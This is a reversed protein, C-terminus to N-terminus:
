YCRYSRSFSRKGMPQADADDAIACLKAALARLDDPRYDGAGGVLEQLTVIPKRDRDQALCVHLRLNAGRSVPRMGAAYYADEHVRAFRPMHAGICEKVYTLAAEQEMFIRSDASLPAGIWYRFRNHFLRGVEVGAQRVILGGRTADGGADVTVPIGSQAAGSATPNPAPLEGRTSVPPTTDNM